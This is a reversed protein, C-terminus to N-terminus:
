IKFPLFFKLALYGIGVAATIGLIWWSKNAIWEYVAVKKAHKAQWEAAAALRTNAESLNDRLALVEVDASNAKINLEDIIKESEGLLLWQEAVRAQAGNLLDWLDALEKESASKQQSLRSLENIAADLSHEIAQNSEKVVVIETKVRAAIPAVPASRPPTTVTNATPAVNSCGILILSLLSLLPLNM